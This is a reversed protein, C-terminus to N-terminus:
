KTRILYLKTPTFSTVSYLNSTAYLHIRQDKKIEALTLASESAGSTTTTQTKLVTATSVTVTYTKETMKGDLGPLGYLVTLTKSASDVSVVKGVFDTFEQPAAITNAVATKQETTNTTEKPPPWLIWSVVALVVVTVSILLGLRFHRHHHPTPLPSLQEMAGSTYRMKKKKDVM